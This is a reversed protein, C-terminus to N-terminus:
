SPHLCKVLILSDDLPPIALNYYTKSGHLAHQFILNQLTRSKLTVYKRFHFHLLKAIGYISAQRKCDKIDFVFDSM